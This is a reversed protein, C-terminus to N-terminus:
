SPDGGEKVVVALDFGVIEAGSHGSSSTSLVKVDEVEPQALFKKVFDAMAAHNLAQGKIDMHMSKRWQEEEESVAEDLTAMVFYGTQIHASHKKKKKKAERVFKWDTFWIGPNLSRDVVEFLRVAQPGSRLVDLVALRKKLEKKEIHLEDFIKKQGIVVSEGAELRAIMSKEIKLLHNLWLRGGGIVALICVFLLVFRKIARQLFLAQRYDTPALDIERITM